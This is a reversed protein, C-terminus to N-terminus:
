FPEDYDDCFENGTVNIELPELPQSPKFDKLKAYTSPYNEKLFNPNIVSGKYGSGWLGGGKQLWALMDAFVENIRYDDLPKILLNKLDYFNNYDPEKSPFSSVDKYIERLYDYRETLRKSNVIGHSIEHNIVRQLDKNEIKPTFVFFRFTPHPSTVAEWNPAEEPISLHDFVDQISGSCFLRYNDKQLPEQWEDPLSDLCKEVKEVFDSSINKTKIIPYKMGFSMLYNNNQIKQIKM